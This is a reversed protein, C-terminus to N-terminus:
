EAKIGRSKIIDGFLNAEAKSWATVEAPTMIMHEGGFEMFKAKLSPSALIKNV